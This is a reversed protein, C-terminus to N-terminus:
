ANRGGDLSSMKFVFSYALAQLTTSHSPFATWQLLAGDTFTYKMGLGPVTLVGTFHVSERRIIQYSYIADLWKKAQCPAEIEMTVNIIDSSPLLGVLLQGDLTVRFESATTQQAMFASTSALGRVSVPVGVLSSAPNVWETVQTNFLKSNITDTITPDSATLTLTSNISTISQFAM